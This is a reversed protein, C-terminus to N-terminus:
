PYHILQPPCRIGRLDECAGPFMAEEHAPRNPLTAGVDATQQDSISIWPYTNRSVKELIEALKRADEEVLPSKARILIQNVVEDPTSRTSPTNEPQAGPTSLKAGSATQPIGGSRHQTSSNNTVVRTAM